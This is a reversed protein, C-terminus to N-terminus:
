AGADQGTRPRSAIVRREIKRAARELWAAYIRLRQNVSASLPGRTLRRARDARERNDHAKHLLQITAQSM